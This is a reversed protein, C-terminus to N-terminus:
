GDPREIVDLTPETSIGSTIIVGVPCDIVTDCPV